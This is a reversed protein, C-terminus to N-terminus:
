FNWNRHEYVKEIIGTLNETPGRFMNLWEGHDKLGPCKEGLPIQEQLLQIDPDMTDEEVKAQVRM